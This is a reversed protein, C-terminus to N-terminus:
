HQLLNGHLFVRQVIFNCVPLRSVTVQPHRQKWTPVVQSARGNLFDEPSPEERATLHNLSRVQLAPACTQDRPLATGPTVCSAREQGREVGAKVEVYRSLERAQKM